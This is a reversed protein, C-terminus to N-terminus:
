RSARRFRLSLRSGDSIRLDDPSLLTYSVPGADTPFIRGGATHLTSSLTQSLRKGSRAVTGSASVSGDPTVTFTMAEVTLGVADPHGLAEVSSLTWTGVLMSDVAAPTKQAAASVATLSVVLALSLRRM